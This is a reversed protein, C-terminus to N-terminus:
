NGGTGRQGGRVDWSEPDTVGPLKPQYYLDIGMAMAGPIEEYGSRKWFERGRPNDDAVMIIVRKIGIRRLDALSEDLLRKGLGHGQYAHEVALHYIHGRRGDHGCLAVGVITTGDTAVRSLGPNRALFQAVGERDDGEAIELGEVRKWLEIALDYDEIAFERTEIQGRMNLGFNLV